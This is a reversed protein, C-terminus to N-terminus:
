GTIVPCHPLVSDDDVDVHVLVELVDPHASMVRCRAAESIDHGEGVNINRDVQVHVDVLVNQAMRRTRLDHVGIVGPTAEITARIRAVEEGALGTDILEQLAESAFQVGTKAIMGGVVIAAVADAFNFGMLAGGVGAAVVLSSLADARAHWANAVLMKSRLRTAVALMYRFLGEKCILTIAAAALAAAGVAPAHELDTLRNAASILIGIGTAVLLLGLVLSAATEYRGHGYPHTEDPGEAGKRNAYLVFFDAVIDSLTHMADAVLAQSHAVIGVAVQMVTLVTNVVISVWTIRRGETYRDSDSASSAIYEGAKNQHSLTM